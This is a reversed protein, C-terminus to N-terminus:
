RRSCAPPSTTSTTPSGRSCRAASGRTSTRSRCGTSSTRWTAACASSRASSSATSCTARCRLRLRLRRRLDRDRRAARPGAGGFDIGVGPVVHQSEIVGAVTANGAARAQQRPRSRRSGPRAAAQRHGRRLDRRHGPRPHDARDREAGGCIVGLVSCSCWASASPGCCAWWGGRPRGSTWRRRSRSGRVAGRRGAAAASPRWAGRPPSRTRTRGRITSAEDACEHSRRGRRTSPSSSRSTRRASGGAAGRAHGQRRGPRRRAGRDPRRRRHDVRAPRRDGRHGRGHGAEARRAAPRRHRPRAGLVLRRVPLDRAPARARPRDRAAAAPRRLREHRGPRDAGRPGRAHGARFRAGQAVELAAWLEEDTADPNGYRLNSAVTGSFLYPRQPVLGIRGWLDDPELDRVDVGDVRVAGGTADYLRPVMALLTTKGAGTSGIIATTQGPARPSRCTACCLRPRGRIASRSTTSRWGATQACRRSRRPPRSAGVRPDRGGGHDPRRVGRGAPDHDGHVHGDHGGHPDAPPLRPVRHARRDADPGRRHPGRRVM